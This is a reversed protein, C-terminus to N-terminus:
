EVERIGDITKELEEKSCACRSTVGIGNIYVDTMCGERRDGAARM